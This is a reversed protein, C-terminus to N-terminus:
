RNINILQPQTNELLGEEGFEVGFGSMKNGGFPAHPLVEAHGNVWVTGCELQAAVMQAQDVDGGWVSGGLGLDSDNALQIAQEVTQYPIVPLVPGFQEEDVIRVGNSVNTVITPPFLYGSEDLPKGGSLVKAGQAVADEILEQVKQFQNHNQVPGFTVGEDLGNGVTQASAIDALAQCVEDYQSEHVYLRKLAACTQGMNIFSTQFLPQAIDNISSGPLVIAADNGGLELTLRKLNTSAASMIRQGTATSGTFVIKNIDKHESIAQGLEGGGSLVNIVGDPLVDAMIEIMKLTSFPTLESPKIIVCNGTRLAPMVHWVAIMMPWNWPTISAVVGIPKHHLEIRKNADDQIVKVPVDADAAYRTWAVAGGVEMMALDLPKGQEEVILTALEETAGEIKDAIETLMAKRTIHSVNKWSKFAVQASEVALNLLKVSAEPANRLVEGTAPNIVPRPPLDGDRKQGNIILGFRNDM